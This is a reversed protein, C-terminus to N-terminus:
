VPMPTPKAEVPPAPTARMYEYRVEPWSNNFTENTLAKGEYVTFNGVAVTANFRKGSDDLAGTVNM